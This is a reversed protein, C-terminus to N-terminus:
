NASETLEFLWLINDQSNIFYARDSDNSVGLDIIDMQRGTENTIDVLAEGVGNATDLLWLEDAFSVTGKYWSDPMTHDYKIIAGGCVLSTTDKLLATCKEPIVTIPAPTTVDQESGYIFSQYVGNIQKSYIVGASNGALSFGYGDAPLRKLVGATAKYGYGELQNTAKPYVYHADSADRGWEIIAERFPVTFLTKATGKVPDFEKAIVSNTTKVAYLFTNNTTDAFSIVAEDIIGVSISESTSSIEGVVFEASGGYGSQLLVFQGNPTIAAQYSSPITTGSVRKEQGTVLDISYIHGTGSEVYYVLPTSSADKMVDQYGVVPRTTLQRLREPGTVDVVTEQQDNDGTSDTPVYTTDTTDGFNLDTFTNQETSQGKFFLIYVWVAVLVLVIIIGIIIFLPRKM